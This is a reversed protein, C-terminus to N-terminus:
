ILDLLLWSTFRSDPLKGNHNMQTRSSGAQKPPLRTALSLTTRIIIYLPVQGVVGQAPGEPAQFPASGRRWIPVQGTEHRGM